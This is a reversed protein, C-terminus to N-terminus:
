IINNFYFRFFSYIARHINKSRAAPLVGDSITADKSSNQTEEPNLDEKVESLQITPSSTLTVTYDKSATDKYTLVVKENTAITKNLLNMNKMDKIKLKYKLTAVEDGKLKGIDWEITNTETNIKDSKTGTSPEGVYSFEFNETIDKPFYDVVKVENIPKNLVEQVDKTIDEQVVKDIDTTKANYFKGATPKEETGFIMEIAKIDEETSTIVEGDDDVDNSNVGTMLSIPMIGNKKINLLENKTNELIKKYTENTLIMEKDGVNNREGDENPLGDTLLIIVKNGANESFLTEAKMLGKQINTGSQVKQKEMTTLGNMIDEKNSTPKTIVSAAYVPALLGMEGCFKVVGIRVNSSTDFIINVFKKASDLLISKRTRGDATKFDMSGSNDIVLVIETDKSKLVDKKTNAVKLEVTVEGTEKNSDVITKSIYGQDNELYKTESAQQVVNLNTKLETAYVSSCLGMILIFILLISVRKKLM